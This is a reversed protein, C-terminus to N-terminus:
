YMGMIDNYDYRGSSISGTVYYNNGGPVSYTDNMTGGNWTEYTAKRMGAYNTLTVKVCGNYSKLGFRVVSKWFDTCSAQYLEIATMIASAYPLIKIGYKILIKAAARETLYTVGVSKIENWFGNPALLIYSLSEVEAKPLFLITEPFEGINGNPAHMNNIHWTGGASDTYVYAEAPKNSFITVVVALLITISLLRKWMNNSAIKKMIKM